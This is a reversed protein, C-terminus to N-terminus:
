RTVKSIMAISMVADDERVRPGLKRASDPQTHLFQTGAQALLRQRVFAVVTKLTAAIM